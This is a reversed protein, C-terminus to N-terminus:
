EDESADDTAAAAPIFPATHDRESGDVVPEAAIIAPLSKVWREAQVQPTPSDPEPLVSFERSAASQIVADGQRVEVRSATASRGGKAVEITCGHLTYIPM